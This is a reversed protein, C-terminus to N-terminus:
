VGVENLIQQFFDSYTSIPEGNRAAGTVKFTDNSFIQFEIAFSEGNKSGLYYIFVQENEDVYGDWSGLTDSYTDLITGVTLNEGYGDLMGDRAVIIGYEVRSDRATEEKSQEPEEEEKPQEPEEEEKPQETEEEEKITEKQRNEVSQIEESVSEAESEQEIQVKKIIQEESEDESIRVESKDTKEIEETNENFVTEIKTKFDDIKDKNKHYVIGLGVALILIIIVTILLKKFFRYVKDVRQSLLGKKSIYLEEYLEEMSQQRNEPLVSLGKEIAQAIHKPTKKAIKRIPKLKDVSVREISEEPVTGTIMRYLVACLGYVDTWIGQEGKRSYQEIPAYGHKLVVTMSKDGEGDFYRAAGFDILKVKGNRELMINDPSIDRHLLKNRHIVALSSIIPQILRLTEETSLSGGKQALFKKLSVGDIFEMVIYATGNEYFFDKVTVIGPLEFFKALIAAEKVYRKLGDEFDEMREGSTTTLSNGGDSTVDRSVLNGPYYEKIAVRTEMNTDWALYTIGFGGEGLTRGILYKGNLLTGTALIWKHREYKELSFGCCSCVKAEDSMPQFCGYCRKM